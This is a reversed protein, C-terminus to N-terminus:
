KYVGFDHGAQYMAIVNEVPSNDQIMHTPAFHYGYGKMMIELTEKVNKATEQATGYALPGATSICGRFSLRGGFKEKLYSPSMNTAEPQLTDVANIGMEIFDEYAWSSSGCTHIITPIKYAKALDVFQQHIPRLVRRYLDLSIMPSHQTGLDEGLWMFDIKGKNQELIREMMKIQFDMRKNLFILTAEDDIMLNVLTDEMGMIRGTSNIIDPVGANGIYIAYDKNYEIQDKIVSYDFFDASPVPFNAITESDAGALPYDCFDEYGGSENEVWRTLFGDVPNRERGPVNEFLKPGIYPAGVGRYDVGLAKFVQEYDGNKIGLENALKNHIVPNAEYGITVRDTKELNFTKLVREKATMTENAKKITIMFGGSVLPRNEQTKQVCPSLESTNKIVNYKEYQIKLICLYFVM